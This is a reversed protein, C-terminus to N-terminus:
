DRIELVNVERSVKLSFDVEKVLVDYDEMDFTIIATYNGPSLDKSLDITVKTKDQPLCYLERIKGRDKIMGESDMVYFTGQIHLFTNGLNKFEGALGGRIGSIKDFEGQVLM